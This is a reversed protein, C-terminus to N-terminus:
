IAVKPSIGCLQTESSGRFEEVSVTQVLEPSVAEWKTFRQKLTYIMTDSVVMVRLMM